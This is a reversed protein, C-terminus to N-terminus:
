YEFFVRQIDKQNLNKELCLMLLIRSKQPNLNDAVVFGYKTDDVEAQLTVAGSGTRASRVVGIGNYVAQALADITAMNPNGNGTGAYVIGAASTEIVQAVLEPNFDAYGYLIAVEPLKKIKQINFESKFTHKRTSKRYFRPQGYHVYGLIGFEPSEFAAVNITNRKTVERAGHIRDNFVLLVGKGKAEGSAAVAVSNYLNLAGDASLSGPSRMAGTLVIPKETPVVLNLFYATEEMTDTGHTIVVGDVSEQQVLSDVTRAIHLWLASTMDQSSVQCAQVGSVQAIGRIEPVARLLNDVPIRSPQYQSTVSSQAQGAITGGTAVIVVSPKASTQISTSIICSFALLFVSLMRM